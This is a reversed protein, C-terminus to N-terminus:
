WLSGKIFGAWTRRRGSPWLAIFTDVKTMLLAPRKARAIRVDRHPARYVAVRENPDIVHLSLREGHPCEYHDADSDYRFGNEAYRIARHFHM